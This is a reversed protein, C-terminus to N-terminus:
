RGDDAEGADDRGAPSPQMGYRKICPVAGPWFGALRRCLLGTM